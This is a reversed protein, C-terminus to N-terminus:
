GTLVSADPKKQNMVFGRDFYRNMIDSIEEKHTKVIRETLENNPEYFVSLADSYITGSKMIGFLFPSKTKIVELMKQESADPLESENWRQRKLIM